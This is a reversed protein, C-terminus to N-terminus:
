KSFKIENKMDEGVGKSVDVNKLAWYLYSDMFEIKSGYVVNTGVAGELENDIKVTKLDANFIKGDNDKYNTPKTKKTQVHISNRLRSTVIHNRGKLRLQAEVKIKNLVKFIAKAGANKITTGLTNFQKNLNNLSAKDLEIQVGNSM